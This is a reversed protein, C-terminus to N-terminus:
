SPESNNCGHMICDLQKRLVPWAILSHGLPIQLSIPSYNGQASKQPTWLGTVLQDLCLLTIVRRSHKSKDRAWTFNFPPLVNIRTPISHGGFCIDSYTKVRSGRSLHQKKPERARSLRGDTGFAHVGPVIKQSRPSQNFEAHLGRDINLMRSCRKQGEAVKAGKLGSMPWPWLHATGKRRTLLKEWILMHGICGRKDEKTRVRKCQVTNVRPGCYAAAFAHFDM